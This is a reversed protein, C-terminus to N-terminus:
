LIAYQEYLLERIKYYEESLCGEITIKGADLRRLALTGNNCWLVGGSFESNINNQMLVQKFDSLKLENILVANHVPIEDNELTELTLTKEEAQQEANNRAADNGNTLANGSTEIAQTRIGIRADIWAVEADKGKQFQLQKVLGETLRVQYIHTETTADITEGKQPTFVRAGVNQACHKAVVQTAEESGHVVIVRRPRLQSLIKLMSEGDARGEFDIRQIQANIEITKRQSICKTPKEM